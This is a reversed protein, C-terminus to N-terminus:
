LGVRLAPSIDKMGGGPHQAEEDDHFDDEPHTKSM